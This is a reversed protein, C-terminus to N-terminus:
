LCLELVTMLQIKLQTWMTGNRPTSSERIMQLRNAVFTHFRTSENQIYQLVTTSDTWYYTRHIPVDLERQIQKNVKVAVTCTAATLELRPLTVQKLPAVCSKGMVFACHVDGQSNEMRLYSVTSYGGESADSFHHLQTSM